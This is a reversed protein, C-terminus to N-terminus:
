WEVLIKVVEPALFFQSMPSLPSYAMAPVYFEPRPAADFPLVETKMEAAQGNELEEATPQTLRIVAGCNDCNDAYKPASFVTICREDHQFEFGEDKCEHSRIVRKLGNDKLFRATIDAGFTAVGAGRQSPQIGVLENPDAWLLDTFLTEGETRERQQRQFGATVRDLAEITNLDVQERPLGGHAVFVESNIVHALPLYNFVVQFELYGEMGYKMLAEGAFGYPVNMDHEEHNGRALRVYKPYCTKWALLVLLTEVSFSGRDVFDGNFIYPNDPGPLGNLEIIKVLDFLQGHVDGVVTIRGGPPVTIRELTNEKKLITAVDVVLRKAEAWPWYGGGAVFAQLGSCFEHDIQEIGPYKLGPPLEKEPALAQEEVVEPQPMEEDVVRRTLLSSIQGVGRNSRGNSSLCMGTRIGDRSKGCAKSRRRSKGGIHACFAVGGLFTFAGSLLVYSSAHAQRVVHGAAGEREALFGLDPPPHM